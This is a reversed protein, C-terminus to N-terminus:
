FSPVPKRLSERIDIVLRSEYRVAAEDDTIDLVHAVSPPPDVMRENYPFETAGRTWRNVKNFGPFGLHLLPDTDGVPRPLALLGSGVADPQFGNSINKELPNNIPFHSKHLLLSPQFGTNSHSSQPSRYKKKWEM